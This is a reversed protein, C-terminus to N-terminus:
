SEQELEFDEVSIGARSLELLPSAKHGAGVEVVLHDPYEAVVYGRERLARAAEDRPSGSLPLRLRSGGRGRFGAAAVEAVIAGADLRVVRDALVQVEDAHHAALLLATGRQKLQTLLALLDRRSQEDLNATPEDLLLLPPEGILAVALALKRRMGGSLASVRKERHPVLGTLDLLEAVSAGQAAQAGKFRHYFALTQAVTLEAHFAPEQAVYGLCRLARKPDRRVDWGAVRVEGQYRLLGLICRLVTTKGAGNPGWLAVAEGRRVALSIDDVVRATGFRKVLNHVQLLPPEGRMVEAEGSAEATAGPLTEAGRGDGSVSPFPTFTPPRAIEDRSVTGVAPSCPAVAGARDRARRGRLAGALLGFTSLLMGLAATGLPLRSPHPLPLDAALLPRVLPSPDLVVTNPTFVPFAMAAWDIASAAPSLLFLRLEPHASALQEFMRRSVYPVDGVGDGDADYGTYDSWFNGRGHWAWTIGDLTGEGDLRVQQQNNLFSNGRFVDGRLAPDLALGADNYAVVNDEFLNPADSARPSEYVYLGVHNDLILNDRAEVRDMDRLGIGIGTPGRNRRALNRELRLGVSYMFYAGVADDEFVNGVARCDDSYMLHLGYRGARFQNNAVTSDPSFWLLDDRAGTVTNGTITVGRSYWLRIGDGRRALPLAKGTITNTEIRSGPAQKLYIGFLVDELRNNAVVVEPAEVSVGTDEHDLSTGSGRVVFGEIRSDQATIRVVTGQGGGDIVPGGVGQLRVPHDILLAGQYQGQLVTVTAGPPAAALAQQPTHYPCTPCVTLSAAPATAGARAGASAVAAALAALGLAPLAITRALRRSM